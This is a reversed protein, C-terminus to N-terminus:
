RSPALLELLSISVALVHMKLLSGEGATAAAAATRLQWVKDLMRGRIWRSRLSVAFLYPSLMHCLSM